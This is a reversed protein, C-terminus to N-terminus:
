VKNESSKNHGTLTLAARLGMSVGQLAMLGAFAVILSKLLFIAQIGSTEPSGELIAWSKAVYPVSSWLILGCVPLLFIFAGACDVMAKVRVSATRYFIDVRVHGDHLLTYASGIMFLTAHLYVVAEQMMIFNLSFVYRLVVVMFQTMVM